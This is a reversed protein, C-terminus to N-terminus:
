IDFQKVLLYLGGLKRYIFIVDVFFIYWFDEDFSFQMGMVQVWIFLDINGFDYFGDYYLFECVLKGLVVVM